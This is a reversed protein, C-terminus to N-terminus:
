SALKIKGTYHDDIGDNDCFTGPGEGLTYTGVLSGHGKAGAFIGTGGIVKWRGSDTSSCASSTARFTLTFSDSGGCDVVKTGRFHTLPGTETVTVTLTDVSGVSIPCDLNNRSVLDGDSGLPLSENVTFDVSTPPAASAPAAGVSIMGVMLLGAVVARIFRQHAAFYM